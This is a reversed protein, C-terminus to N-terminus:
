KVEEDLSALLVVGTLTTGPAGLLSGRKDAM